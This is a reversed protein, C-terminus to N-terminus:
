KLFRIQLNLNLFVKGEEMYLSAYNYRSTSAREFKTNLFLYEEFFARNYIHYALVDGNRKVIIYGGNAEDIGDWKKGPTMGLAAACLFKKFKYKYFNYDPFNMPNKKALHEIVNSSTKLDDFYHCLLAYAMFESFQTDVLMMNRKFIDSKVKLFKIDSAKERILKMRDIIKEKTKISNIADVDDNSLGFIEFVFNTADGPNILTPPRGIESKISFGCIPEYGTQIDHIKMKIDTKDNAPAALRDCGIESMFKEILEISFTTTKSNLMECYLFNAEEQFREFAVQKVFIDNVYIQVNNKLIYKCSQNNKDERYIKLIPFYVEENKEMNEDATYLKRDALLRLLVYVESWEGKNGKINKEQTM